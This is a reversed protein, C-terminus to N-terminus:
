RVAYQRWARPNAEAYATLQTDGIQAVANKVSARICHPYTYARLDDRRHQAWCVESAAQVIETHIQEASKGALSVRVEHAQAAPPAFIVAAAAVFILRNM